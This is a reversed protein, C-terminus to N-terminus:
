DRQRGESRQEIVARAATVQRRGAGTATCAAYWRDSRELVFWRRPAAGSPGHRLGEINMGKPSAGLPFAVFRHLASEGPSSLVGAHCACDARRVYQDPRADSVVRVAGPLNDGLRLLLTYEPLASSGLRREVVKRLAGEPRLNRFDNPLPKGRFTRPPDIHQDEFWRGLM